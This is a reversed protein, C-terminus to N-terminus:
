AHGTSTTTEDEVRTTEQAARCARHGCSCAGEPDADGPLSEQEACNACYRSCWTRGAEVPCGCSAHGCRQRASM